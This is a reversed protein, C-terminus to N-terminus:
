ASSNPSSTLSLFPDLWARYLSPVQVTLLRLTSNNGPVIAPKRGKKDSWWAAPQSGLINSVAIISFLWGLTATSINFNEVLLLPLLTM